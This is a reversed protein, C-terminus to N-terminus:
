HDARLEQQDFFVTLVSAGAIFFPKFLSPRGSRSFGRRSWLVVLVVRRGLRRGVRFFAILSMRHFVTRDHNKAEGIFATKLSKLFSVKRPINVPMVAGKKLFKAESGKFVQVFLFRDRHVHHRASQCLAARAGWFEGDGHDDGFFISYMAGNKLYPYQKIKDVGKITLQRVVIAGLGNGLIILPVSM